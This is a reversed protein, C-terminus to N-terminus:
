DGDAMPLCEIAARIGLWGAIEPPLPHRGHRFPGEHPVLGREVLASELRHTIRALPVFKTEWDPVMETMSDFGLRACVSAIDGLKYLETYDIRVDKRADGGDKPDRNLYYKYTYEVTGGVTDDDSLLIWTDCGHCHFSGVQGYRGGNYNRFSMFRHDCNPCIKLIPGSVFYSTHGRGSCVRVPDLNKEIEESSFKAQIIKGM